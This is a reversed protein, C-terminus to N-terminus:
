IHETVCKLVPMFYSKFSENEYNGGTKLVRKLHDIDWWMMKEKEMYDDQVQVNYVIDYEDVKKTISEHKFNKLIFTTCNRTYQWLVTKEDLPMVVTKEYKKQKNYILYTVFMNKGSEEVSKIGLIYGIESHKHIEYVKISSELKSLTKGCCQIDSLKSRTINFKKIYSEDFPVQFLYTVHYKESGKEQQINVVLKIVFENKILIERLKQKCIIAGLSEENFERIATDLIHESTKRGGEFGSWRNSGKWTPNYREKALLFKCKGFEDVCIPIVGAGISNKEINGDEFEVININM